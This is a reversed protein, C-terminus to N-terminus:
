EAAAVQKSRSAFCPAATELGGDPVPPVHQGWCTSQAWVLRNLVIPEVKQAERDSAVVGGM